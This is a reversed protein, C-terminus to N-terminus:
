SRKQLYDYDCVSDFLKVINFIVSWDSGLIANHDLTAFVSVSRRGNTRSCFTFLFVLPVAPTCKPYSCVNM